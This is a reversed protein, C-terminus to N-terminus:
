YSDTMAYKPDAEFAAIYGSAGAVLAKLDTLMDADVTAGVAKAWGFHATLNALYNDAGFSGNDGIYGAPRTTPMGYVLRKSAQTEALSIPIGGLVDSLQFTTGASGDGSINVVYYPVNNGLFGSPPDGNITGNWMIMDGNQMAYNASVLHGSDNNELTFLGTGSDWTLQFGYLAFQDDNTIYPTHCGNGTCADGNQRGMANYYPLAWAGFSSYIHAPWKLIYNLFDLTASSGTLGYALSHAGILYGMTWSAQVGGSGSGMELFMGNDAVYAPADAKLLGIYANLGDYTNSILDAFYSDYSANEPNSNPLIQTAVLDRTPWALSRLLDDGFFLGGNYTVGDITVNRISGIYNEADNVVATGSGTYENYVAANGYEAVLDMFQPEGTLVYPYYCFAAIHSFDIFSWGQTLVNTDSPQTFGSTLSDGRWRFSTSHTPMGAYDNGSVVPMAKTTADRLCVPLHGGILGIIRVAQEDVAAKTFVHRVYWSPLPGIDNREGTTSIFRTVPGATDPTYIYAANGSPSFTELDYPPLAGSGAWYAMDPQVLIDADDAVSGGGQVYNWHGDEKATWISGFQSVFPYLSCTHTGTGADTPAICSNIGNSVVSTFSLGLAFTDADVSYTAYSQGTSLGAPLTGTTTLRALMGREFGHPSGAGLAKGSSWTFNAAAPYNATMDALQSAGDYVGFASFSRFDPSPSAVNYYPQTVRTLHRVGALNGEADQLAAVYWWGELQGHDASSQRFAAPVRWVAGADGDMYQYDAGNAAIGQNLSSVWDGSLNDLGTVTVNLDLTGASFDDLARASASPAAGGNLVNITLSSSAPIGVPLRLMFAAHFLSGDRHARTQKSMSYHVNTGDELHFLPATGSPIDGRQFLHGFIPTISGAPQDAASTNLLSMSTLTTPSDDGGGGASISVTFIKDFTKEADDTVRVGVDWDGVVAGAVVLNNSGDVSFIPTQVPIIPFATDTESALGLAITQDSSGGSATFDDYSLGAGGNYLSTIEDTTLVRSWTALEDADGGATLAISAALRGFISSTSLTLTGSPTYSFNTADLVGDVYLKADGNDDTWVIHHWNGDFVTATSLIRNLNTSGADNRLFIELKQSFSAPIGIMFLPTGSVASEAYLAGESGQGTYKFWVAVSYAGGMSAVPTGFSVYSSNGLSVHIGGNIKGTAWGPSNVLTGTHGGGTADAASTGAGEDLKWYAALGDLLAM